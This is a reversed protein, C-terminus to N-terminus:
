KKQRREIEQKTKNGKLAKLLDDWTQKSQAQAAIYDRFANAFRKVTRAPAEYSFCAVQGSYQKRIIKMLRKELDEEVDLDWAFINRQKPLDEYGVYMKEAPIGIWHDAPHSGYAVVFIIRTTEYELVGYKKRLRREEKVLERFRKEKSKPLRIKKPDRGKCPLYEAILDTMKCSIEFSEQTYPEAMTEVTEETPYVLVPWRKGPHPRFRPHVEATGSQYDTIDQLTLTM